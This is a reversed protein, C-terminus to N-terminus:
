YRLGVVIRSERGDVAAVWQGPLVQHADVHHMGDRNWGSGTARIVPNPSLEKEEYSSMTLRTIEFVRVGNGYTPHDDQAYRFLRKKYVLLRGGPRAINANGDVIPSEPHETWDGLLSESYFLRLTTNKPTTRPTTFLWWRNNFRVVSSDVFQGRLLTKVFSWKTPFLSARYLRVADAKVSEPIMYFHGDSKFVYPYSLHFPEDLVIQMYRWDFANRSTAVAIDGHESSTNMVEFFIYWTSDDQFIFPDAVFEASVDNVDQATLVPNRVGSSSSLTFPSDGSYIGISWSHLWGVFPVDNSGAVYLGATSVAIALVILFVVVWNKFISTSMVSWDREVGIQTGYVEKQMM